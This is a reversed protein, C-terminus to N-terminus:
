ECTATFTVTSDALALSSVSILIEDGASVEITVSPAGNSFETVKSNSKNNIAINNIEDTSSVTLSGTQTAVWGYYIIGEKPVNASVAEGIALEIPNEM